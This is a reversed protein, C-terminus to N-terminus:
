FWLSLIKGSTIMGITDPYYAIVSWKYYGSHRSRQCTVAIVDSVHLSM